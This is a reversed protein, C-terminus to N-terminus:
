QGKTHPIWRGGTFEGWLPWHRPAKTNEKIQAEIFPQIFLKLAPSKAIAIMIVDNYHSFEKSRDSAMLYLSNLLSYGFAIAM